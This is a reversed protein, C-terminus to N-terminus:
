PSWAGDGVRSVAAAPLRDGGVAGYHGRRCFEGCFSVNPHLKQNKIHRGSARCALDPLANARFHCKNSCKLSLKTPQFVRVNNSSPRRMSHPSSFPRFM